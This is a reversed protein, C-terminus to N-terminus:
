KRVDVRQKETLNRATEPDDTTLYDVKLDILQRMIQPDNITWTNVTLGLAKAEAVWQPNKQLVSYHYDLGLVGEKKLEAPPLANKGAALFAVPQVVTKALTKCINLGFSIYEVRKEMQMKKVLGVVANITRLELEQDKKTKIEIILRINKDKKLQRLYEKLTPLNEGNALKLNRLIKASTTNICYGQISDDHNIIIEGDASLHVDTESGFVGLKQANALSSISNKASGSTKWYGRHAIVATQGFGAIACLFCAGILFLLQKQKMPTNKNTM